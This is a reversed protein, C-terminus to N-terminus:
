RKVTCLAQRIEGPHYATHIMMAMAGGIERGGPWAPAAHILAKIRNYSARLNTTMM